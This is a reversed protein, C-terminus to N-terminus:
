EGTGTPALNLATKRNILSLFSGGRGGAFSAVVSRLWEIEKELHQISYDRYPNEEAAKPSPLKYDLAGHGKLLWQEPVSYASIIKEANKRSLEKSGGEVKALLSASMKVDQAFEIQTKGATERLLRVRENVTSKM